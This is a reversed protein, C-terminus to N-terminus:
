KAQGGYGEANVIDAVTLGAAEARAIGRELAGVDEPRHADSNIMFVAGLEKARRIYEIDLSDHGANIEIPTNTQACGKALLEMDIHCHDGPHTICDIRYRRAARVLAQTMTRAAREVARERKALASAFNLRFMAAADMFVVRHFGLLVVDFKEILEPPVDIRGDLGVINAEVGKLVRLKGDYRRNAADIDAFYDKLRRRRLGFFVHGFSHDCIALTKIGKAIAAKANDDVSGKGHSYTTHTHLDTLVRM